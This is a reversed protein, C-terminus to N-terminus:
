RSRKDWRRHVWFWQEPYRNIYSEIVANLKKLLFIYNEDTDELEPHYIMPEFCIKIGGEPTRLPFAPVIPVKYRLSIKAVGKWHSAPLGMFDLTLGTPGANQDTLIAVMENKHLHGLLEKMGRQDDIIHVGQRTRLATNYADFYPNHQKQAVVSLPIGFLPLIRAAEWNGLHATALIVGQGLSFAKDAHSKGSLKTAALLKEEPLLYLEYAILGLNYYIKKLLTKRELPSQDPYVNRLNREAVERRIGLGFGIWVFLRTILWRRWALPLLRLKFLLFRFLLYETRNVFENRKM